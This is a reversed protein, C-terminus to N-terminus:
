REVTRALSFGIAWGSRDLRRTLELRLPPLVLSLGTEHHFEDAYRPSYGWEAMGKRGIWTRGSAGHVVLGLGRRVAGGLRMREFLRTGLDMEWFLAGYREGEYPRGSITRFTGFPRYISLGADLAGYRQVPLDGTASGALLHLHVGEGWGSKRVLWGAYWDASLRYRTYSFDSGLWEGSHEVTLEARRQERRGFPRYPGGWGFLLELARVRGEDVAPNEPQPEDRDECFWKYFRGNENQFGCVLDFDTRKRLSRADEQALGVRLVSGTQAFRYGAEANWRRSGYYDFYDDLSLLM